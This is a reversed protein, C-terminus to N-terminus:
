GYGNYIRSYIVSYCCPQIKITGPKDTLALLLLKGTLWDAGLEAPIRSGFEGIGGTGDRPIFFGEIGGGSTGFCKRFTDSGSLFEIKIACLLVGDSGGIRGGGNSVLTLFVICM